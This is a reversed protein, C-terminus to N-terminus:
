KLKRIKLKAAMEKNRLSETLIKIKNVKGKTKAM